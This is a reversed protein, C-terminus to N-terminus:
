LVNGVCSNAKHPSSTHARERDREGKIERKREKARERAERKEIGRCERKSERERKREKGSDGQTEIVDKMVFIPLATNWVSSHELCVSSHELCVSLCDSCCFVTDSQLPGRRAGKFWRVKETM